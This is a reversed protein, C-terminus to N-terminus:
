TRLLSTQDQQCATDEGERVAPCCDQSDLDVASDVAEAQICTDSGNAVKENTTACSASVLAGVNTTATRAEVQVEMGKCILRLRM